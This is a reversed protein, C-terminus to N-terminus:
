VAAEVGNRAGHEDSARGVAVPRGQVEAVAAELLAIGTEMEAETVILPPSLRLSSAGCELVLLGRTFAAWQVAEALAASTFELALMLGRGRVDTVLDPHAARIARLGALAQEGRIRANDILGDELLDITALAAACAVPNGGFTSGHAGPGWREMVDRRAIMAGLPMGSAIGKAALLIDPTVDTHDVAWMRGTRGAGSQVEDAILLIGHEDAIRRLGELFGVEPVIYGGEGQIPEVIIAAVEEPAVLRAFLVEDFWRLDAVHGYPAHHVDAMLPGFGAHYKAKSATLSISGYTRGHFAGLFAVIHSRGTAKRALKIAAEVVETGSNGIYVRADDGFPSILALRQATEAYIPLYFDSASYHLLEGAQRRIAEVVRPHAHGTSNVAIGAAFDLFVNGDIDEVALGNGRVPVFPYARTLSPSTWREDFAVHERARPGPIETVLHPVVDTTRDAAATVDTGREAGSRPDSAYFEHM